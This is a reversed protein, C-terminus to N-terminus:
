KKWRELRPISRTALWAVISNMGSKRMQQICFHQMKEANNVEPPTLFRGNEYCMSCYKASKSGDKETGGGKKDKAMPYGCSQCFKYTKTM